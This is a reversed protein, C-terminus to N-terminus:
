FLPRKITSRKNAADEAKEFLSKNAASRNYFDAASVVGAKIAASNRPTLTFDLDQRFGRPDNSLGQITVRLRTIENNDAEIALEYEGASLNSFTYRSGDSIPQRGVEGGVDKYLIVMVKPPASKDMGSENIKVDGFLTAGRQAFATSGIVLIVSMALLALQSLKQM